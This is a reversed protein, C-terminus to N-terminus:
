LGEMEVFIPANEGLYDLSRVMNYSYWEIADERTMDDQVMLTTILQSMSYVLVLTSSIGIICNDYGDMVFAKPNSESIIAVYNSM